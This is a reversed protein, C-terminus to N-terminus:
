ARNALDRWKAANLGVLLLWLTLVVEGLSGLTLAYPSLEAAIAPAAFSAFSYAMYGLGGLALCAGVLRPIFGSAVILWGILLCYFGFFALSIDFGVQHLDLFMQSLAQLQGASFVGLYPSGGLVVLPALQFLAIASGVAGGVLSSFAALLSVSANVPKFLEYFLMTVVIYVPILDVAFAVRYLPESTLINHATTAANGPDVLRGRVALHDFAGVGITLLYCLGALRAKLRPSATANRDAM